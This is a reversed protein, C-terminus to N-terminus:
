VNTAAKADSREEHAATIHSPISHLHHCGYSASLFWFLCKELSSKILSQQRTNFCLDDSHKTMIWRIWPTPFYNPSILLTELEVCWMLKNLSPPSLGPSLHPSQPFRAKDIEYTARILVLARWADHLYVSHWVVWSWCAKSPVRSLSTSPM